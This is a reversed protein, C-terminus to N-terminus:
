AEVFKLSDSGLFDEFLLKADASILHRDFLSSSAKSLAMVEASSLGRFRRKELVSAVLARAHDSGYRELGDAPPSLDVGDGGPAVPRAQRGAVVQMSLSSSTALGEVCLAVGSGPVDDGVSFAELTRDLTALSSVVEDLRSEKLMGLTEDLNQSRASLRRLDMEVPLSHVAEYPVLAAKMAPAIDELKIKFIHEGITRIKNEYEDTIKRFNLNYLERNIAVGAISKEFRVKIDGYFSDLKSKFASADAVKKGVEMQLASETQIDLKSRTLDFDQKIQQNTREIMATTAAVGGLVAVTQGSIANVIMEGVERMEKELREIERETWRQLNAVDRSVQSIEGLLERRLSNIAGDVYGASVGNTESM